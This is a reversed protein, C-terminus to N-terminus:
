LLGEEKFSFAQDGIIVHDLVKIGLIRGADGLERTLAIDEGSPKCSGSPHNHGLIISFAGCQIARRFVERPHVLSSNLTGLSVLEVFKVKNTVSLAIVWFHEREQSLRDEQNLIKRLHDAVETPGELGAKERSVIM